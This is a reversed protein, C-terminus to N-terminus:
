SAGTWPGGTSDKNSLRDLLEDTEPSDTLVPVLDFLDPPEQLVEGVAVGQM